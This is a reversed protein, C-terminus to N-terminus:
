KRQGHQARPNDSHKGPAARPLTSQTPITLGPAPDLSIPRDAAHERNMKIQLKTQYHTQMQITAFRDPEPWLASGLCCKAVSQALSDKRMSTPGPSSHLFHIAM